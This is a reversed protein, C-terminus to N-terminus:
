ERQMQNQQKLIGSHLDTNLMIVSYALIYSTDPDKFAGPNDLNYVKSFCVM